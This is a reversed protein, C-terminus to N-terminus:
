APKMSQIDAFTGNPTETTTTVITVQKGKALVAEIDVPEGSVIEAETVGFNKLLKGLKTNVSLDFPMGMKIVPSKGDKGHVDKVRVHVDLYEFAEKGRKEVALHDIEAPHAGDPISMSERGKISIPM